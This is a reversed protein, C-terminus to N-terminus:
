WAAVVEDWRAAFRGLRCALGRFGFQPHLSREAKARALAAAFEGDRRPGTSPATISTLDRAIQRLSFGLSVLIAVFRKRRADLKAPQGRSRCETKTLPSRRKNSLPSRPRFVPNKTFYEKGQSDCRKSALSNAVVPRRATEVAPTRAVRGTPLRATGSELDCMAPRQNEM